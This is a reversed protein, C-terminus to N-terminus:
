KSQYVALRTENLPKEENESYLPVNNDVQENANNNLLVKNNAEINSLNQIQSSTRTCKLPQFYM